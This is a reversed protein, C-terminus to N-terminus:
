GPPAMLPSVRQQVAQRSCDSSAALDDWTLGAQRGALMLQTQKRRAARLREEAAEVARRQRELTYMVSRLDAERQAALRADLRREAIARRTTAESAM